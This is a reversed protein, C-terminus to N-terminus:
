VLRMGQNPAGAAVTIRKDVKATFNRSRVTDVFLWEAEATDKTLTITAYGRSTLEGYVMNKNKAMMAKVMSPGVGMYSEMGPSTVSATTVELARLDGKSDHHVFGWANHIDGSLIITNNAHERLTEIMRDRSRPYGGGWTDSAFPVNNAEQLKMRMFYDPGFRNARAPDMHTTPDVPVFTAAITQQGLIQWPVGRAKSAKLTETLWTEQEPGLITREGNLVETKYREYDPMFICGKPLKEADGAVQVFLDPRPTPPYTSADYPMAWQTKGDPSPETLFVMNWGGPAPDRGHIRTDLMIITAVDGVDFSRFIRASEGPKVPEPALPRIPMWEFYAQAARAKRQDWTGETGGWHNESGMKYANNAIEHDDWVPVFPHRRHMEQLDPDQRYSGYRLRYDALTVLKKRPEAIRSGAAIEAETSIGPGYEYIYDGIHLTVDIDDRDACHRYANFFGQGVNACCFVALKLPRTGSAPFTRTRGIPSIVDGNSKFRYYYTTGPLLGTVDVKVTYDRTDDTNATGSKILTTFAETDSVEWTVTVRGSAAPEARTWIVVATHLPDGSAVGHTFRVSAAPADPALEADNVVQAANTTTAITVATAAGLGVMLDRREILPNSM